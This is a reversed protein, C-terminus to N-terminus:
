TGAGGTLRMRDAVNLAAVLDRVFEEHLRYGDSTAGDISSVRILLGDPVSGTLGYSLQALKRGVGPLTAKAGVTMWYTIQEIRPGLTAIMRRVPVAGRGVVMTGNRADSIAFGQAEYCFEPRHLQSGSGQDKGYAISLMVHHGQRDIYTRDLVQAYIKDIEAQIDASFSAAHSDETKWGAFSVPVMLQLDVPAASANLEQQPKLTTGLATAVALCACLLASRVLVANM